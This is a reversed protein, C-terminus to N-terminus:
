LRGSHPRRPGAVGFLIQRTALLGIVLNAAFAVGLTLEEPWGFRSSVLGIIAGVICAMAMWFLFHRMTGM